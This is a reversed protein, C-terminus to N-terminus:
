ERVRESERERERERGFYKVPYNFFVIKAKQVSNYISCQEQGLLAILSPKQKILCVTKKAKTYSIQQRDLM